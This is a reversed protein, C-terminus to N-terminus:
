KDLLRCPFIGFRKNLLYMVFTEFCFVEIVPIRRLSFKTLEVWVPSCTFGLIIYYLKGTSGAATGSCWLEYRSKNRNTGTVWDNSKHTTNQLDKNRNKDIKMQDNWQRDEKSKVAKSQGKPIRLHKKVHQVFIILVWTTQILSIIPCPWVFCFSITM